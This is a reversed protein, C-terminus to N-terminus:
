QQKGYNNKNILTIIHNHSIDNINEEKIIFVNKGIPACLNPNSGKGFLVIKKATNKSSVVLLHMPGTDNGLILDAFRSLYALDIINTKGILNFINKSINFKHVIKEEDKGGVLVINIDKKTLYNIITLYNIYDWRKNVRRRSGGPVIIAYPKPINFKKSKEIFLNWNPKQTVNIGACKLQQKQREITHLLRRNSALHPHSCKKEIGSWKVKKFLSFIFFYFSTRKSTQLDFVWDFDSKIYWVILSIYSFISYFRPRNDLRIDKVFPISKFLDEYKAETLVTIKCDRFHKEISFIPYMALIVDGLAGHKIILIKKM